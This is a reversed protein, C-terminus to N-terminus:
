HVQQWIVQNTLQECKWGLKEATRLLRNDAIEGYIVPCGNKCAIQEVLRMGDRLAVAVVAASADPDTCVHHFFAVNACSTFYLWGCALPSGSGDEMIIGVPPLIEPVPSCLGRKTWWQSIEGIFEPTVIRAMM